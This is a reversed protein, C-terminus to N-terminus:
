WNDDFSSSTDDDFSSFSDDFDNSMMDMSDDMASSLMTDDMSSIMTADSCVGYPNGEIDINSGPMMPTGDCNAAPKTDIDPSSDGGTEHNFLFNFLGMNEGINDM